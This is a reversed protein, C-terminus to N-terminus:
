ISYLVTFFFACFIGMLYYVQMLKNQKQSYQMDADRATQMNLLRELSTVYLRHRSATASGPPPHPPHMGGWRRDPM